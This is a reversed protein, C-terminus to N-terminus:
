AGIGVLAASLISAKAGINQFSTGIATLRNEVTSQLKNIAQSAKDVGQEFGKVDADIKATFSM